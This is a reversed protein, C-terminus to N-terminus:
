RCLYNLCETTRGYWLEGNSIKEAIYAAIPRLTTEYMRYADVSGEFRHCYIVGFTKNTCLNDIWAKGYNILQQELETTYQSDIIDFGTRIIRHDTLYQAKTNEYAEDPAKSDYESWFFINDVTPKYRSALEGINAVVGFTTFGNQAMLKKEAFVGEKLEEVTLTSNNSFDSPSNIRNHYIIECGEDQKKLLDGINADQMATVNIAYDM